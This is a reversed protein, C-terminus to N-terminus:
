LMTEKCLRGSMRQPQTPVGALCDASNKATALATSRMRGKGENERDHALADASMLNAGLEINELVCDVFHTWDTFLTVSLTRM